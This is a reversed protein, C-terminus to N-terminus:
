WRYRQHDSRRHIPQNRRGSFHRHRHQRHLGGAIDRNADVTTYQITVTGESGGVRIVEVSVLGDGENVTYTNDAMEIIGPSTGSQNALLSVESADLVRKYIRVDDILGDFNNNIRGINVQQTPLPTLGALSATSYVENGDVYVQYTTGDFTTAVHNWQDLTLVNPTTFSQWAGDGFGAHIKTSDEVWIGPYRAGNSGPQYGLVGQWGTGNDQPYIWVSQTFLGGSLDLSPDAPISVYDDVGDTSLSQSGIAANGNPGDPTTINVHTGDNGLGSADLVTQGISTEELKWHGVLGTPDPEGPDGGIQFNALQGALAFNGSTDSVQNAELAVTYSGDTTPAAISYIATRPTGDTNNDVSVFSALQDFGSPGTIRVDSGDLTSVDVAQDDLYSVSVDITAGRRSTASAQRRPHRTAPRDTSCCALKQPM